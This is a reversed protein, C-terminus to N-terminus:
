FPKTVMLVIIVAFTRNIYRSKVLAERFPIMVDFAMANMREPRNLTILAIGPRPRDILVFSM